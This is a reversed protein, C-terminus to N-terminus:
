TTRMSRIAELLTANQERLTQNLSEVIEKHDRSQDRITRLAPSGGRWNRILVGFGYVLYLWAFLPGVDAWGTGDM